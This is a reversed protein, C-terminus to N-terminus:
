RGGKDVMAVPIEGPQKKRGALRRVADERTIVENTREDQYGILRWRYPPLEGLKAGYGPIFSFRVHETRYELFLTPFPPRPNDYATTDTFNAKGYLCTIAESDDGHSCPSSSSKQTLSGIVAIVLAFGIIGLCGLCGQRQQKAKQRKQAEGQKRKLDEQAELRAKEEEYIRQREEPTLPM